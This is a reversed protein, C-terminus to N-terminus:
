AKWMDIPTVERKGQRILVIEKMEEMEKKCKVEYEAENQVYRRKKDKLNVNAGNELLMTVIEDYERAGALHLPAAGENTTQQNVNAGFKILMEAIGMKRIHDPSYSNDGEYRHALIKKFIMFLPTMGHCERHNVRAGQKLLANVKETHGYEAAYFLPTRGKEDEIDMNVNHETFSDFIEMYGQRVDLHVAAVGERNRVEVEVGNQLMYEMIEVLGARNAGTDQGVAIVLQHIPRNGSDDKDAKGALAKAVDEAEQQRLPIAIGFKTLLDIKRLKRIYYGQLAKNSHESGAPVRLTKYGERKILIGLSVMIMDIIKESTRGGADLTYVLGLGPRKRKNIILIDGQELQTGQLNTMNILKMELSVDTLSSDVDGKAPVFFAFNDNVDTVHQKTHILKSKEEPNAYHGDPTNLEMLSDGSDSDLDTSDNVCTSRVEFDKLLLFRWPENGNNDDEEDFNQRYELGTDEQEM